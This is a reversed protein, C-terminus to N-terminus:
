LDDRLLMFEVARKHRSGTAVQGTRPHMCMLAQVVELGILIHKKVAIMFIPKRLDTLIEQCPLQAM